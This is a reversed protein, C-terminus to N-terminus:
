RKNFFSDQAVTDHLESSIRAREEEQAQIVHYIYKGTEKERAKSKLLLILTVIVAVLVFFSFIGLLFFFSIFTHILNMMEEPSDIYAPLATVDPM